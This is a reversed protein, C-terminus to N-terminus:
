SATRPSACLCRWGSPGHCCTLRVGGPARGSGASDSQVEREEACREAGGGQSGTAFAGRVFAQQWAPVLLPEGQRDGSQHRRVYERAFRAIFEAVDMYGGAAPAAEFLGSPAAGARRYRTKCRADCYLRRRGTAPQEITAGCHRCHTESVAAGNSLLNATAM